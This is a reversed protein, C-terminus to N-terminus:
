LFKQLLNLFEQWKDLYAFHGANQAVVVESNKINKKFIKTFYFPTEKDLKGWFLVVPCEIKKLLKEQNYNVINVFTRKLNGDLKKYDESGFNALKQQQILHLRALVKLFKYYKIKIKLLFSKNKLGACGTLVMKEVLNTSNSAIELAVRGGFSHAVICVKLINKQRLFEKVINAYDGITLPKELKSSKGFPPFDILICKRNQSLKKAFFVFSKTSGGWGHLFLIPTQEKLTKGYIEYHIKLSDYCFIM